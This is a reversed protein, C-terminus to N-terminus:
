YRCQVFWERHCRKNNQQEDGEDENLDVAQPDSFPTDPNSERVSRHHLKDHELDRTKHGNVGAQIRSASEFELAARERRQILTHRRNRVGSMEKRAKQESPSKNNSSSLQMPQKKKHVTMTDVNCSRAM